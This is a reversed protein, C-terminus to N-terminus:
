SYKRSLRAGLIINQKASLPRLNELAWCLKFNTDEMSMYPLKSQPIIHDLQWTWTSQNNDDWKNPLYNGWNNWNMWPEFQKEIHTKLELMTYPLYKTISNGQKNTGMKHFWENIRGSILRRLKIHPELSYRIRFRYNLVNKHLLYWKRNRVLIKEKNKKYCNKIKEKNLLYYDKSWEKIHNKTKHKYEKSKQKYQPNQKYQKYKEKNKLSYEKNYQKVCKKSTFEYDQKEEKCKQCLKM